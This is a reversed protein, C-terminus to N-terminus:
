VETHKYETVTDAFIRIFKDLATPAQLLALSISPRKRVKDAEISVGDIENFRAILALQNEDDDLPARM